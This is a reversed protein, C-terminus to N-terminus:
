SQRKYVDAERRVALIHARLGDQALRKRRFKEAADVAHRGEPREGRRIEARDGAQLQAPKGFAQLLLVDRQGGRRVQRLAEAREARVVGAPGSAQAAPELGEHLARCGLKQQAVRGHARQAHAPLLPQRKYVDQLGPKGGLRAELLVLSVASAASHRVFRLRKPELRAARLFVMLDALREPKHVLYLRGGWRLARAAAACLADLPCCLESRALSLSDEKRLRGSGPPYYPPNSSTYLLCNM